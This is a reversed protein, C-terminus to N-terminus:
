SQLVIHAQEVNESAHSITRAARGLRLRRGAAAAHRGPHHRQEAQKGVLGDFPASEPIREAASRATLRASGEGGSLLTATAERVNQAAHEAATTGSRCRRALRAATETIQQAARQTAAASLTSQTTDQTAQQRTACRAAQEVASEAM